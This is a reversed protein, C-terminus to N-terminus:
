FPKDGSQVAIVRDLYFRAISITEDYVLNKERVRIEHLSRSDGFFTKVFAHAEDACFFRQDQIVEIHGHESRFIKKYSVTIVWRRNNWQKVYRDPVGSGDEFTSCEDDAPFWDTRDECIGTEDDGIFKVLAVEGGEEQDVWGLVEKLDKATGGDAHNWDQIDGHEDIVASAWNFRPRSM